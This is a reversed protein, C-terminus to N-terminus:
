GTMGGLDSFFRKNGVIAAIFRKIWKPFYSFIWWVVIFLDIALLIWTMARTLRMLAMFQCYTVTTIGLLSYFKDECSDRYDDMTSLDITPESPLVLEGGFWPNSEVNLNGVVFVDLIETSPDPIYSGGVPDGITNTDAFLEPEMNEWTPDEGGMTSYGDIIYQISEVFDKMDLLSAIPERDTYIAGISALAETHEPCWALFYTIGYRVYNLWDAVRPVPVIGYWEIVSDPREVVENCAVIWEPPIRNDPDVPDPDSTDVAAYIKVIVSGTNALFDSDDQVRLLYPGDESATFYIQFRGDNDIQETCYYNATSYDELNVWTDGGDDSIDLLYSGVAGGDDYWKSDGTVEISFAEGNTIESIIKGAELNGPITYSELYTLTYNEECTPWPDISTTGAYVAMNITLTNNSFDSDGDDVRARWIQGAAYMAYIFIHEGDDSQSCYLYPYAALDHWTDGNDSSVQVGYDDVGNDMWPGGTVKLAVMTGTALGSFVLATGDSDNAYILNNSTVTAEHSFQSCGTLEPETGPDVIQAETAMYLRYSISGTNDNYAFTDRVRLAYWYKEFEYLDIQEDLAVFARVHGVTDIQVICEVFPATYINHWEDPFIDIKADEQAIDMDWSYVGGGLNAPGGYTEIMYFRKPPIYDSSGGRPIWIFNNDLPLGNSYDAAITKTEIFDGVLYNLECGSPYHTYSSISYFGISLSGTNSLWDSDDDVRLYSPQLGPPMQIYYTLTNDDYCETLIWADLSYWIGGGTKIAISKLEAGVGQNKWYGSLVKIALWEGSIPYDDGIAVAMNSGYENTAALTMTGIQPGLLFQGSCNGWDQLLDEDSSIALRVSADINYTPWSWVGELKWTLWVNSQYHQGGYVYDHNIDVSDLTIVERVSCSGAPQGVGCEVEVRNDSEIGMSGWEYWIYQREDPPIEYDTDWTIDLEILIYVPFEGCEAGDCKFIGAYSSWAETYFSVDGQTELIVPDDSPDELGIANLTNNVIHWYPPDIALATLTPGIVSALGVMLCVSVNIFRKIM